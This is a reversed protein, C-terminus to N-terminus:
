GSATFLLRLFYRESEDFWRDPSFHPSLAATTLDVPGDGSNTVTWTVIFTQGSVGQAPGDVTEMVLDPVPSIIIALTSTSALDNNGERAGEFVGDRSDTRVIVYLQSAAQEPAPPAQLRTPAM